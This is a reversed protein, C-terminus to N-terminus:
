SPDAKQAPRPPSGVADPPRLRLDITAALAYGIAAAGVGTVLGAAADLPFDLGLYLRAWIVGALGPLGVCLELIRDGRRRTIILFGALLAASLAVPRSPYTLSRFWLSEPIGAGVLSPQGVLFALLWATAWAFATVAGFVIMDTLRTGAILVVAAILLLGLVAFTDLMTNVVTAGVALAHGGRMQLLAGVQGGLESWEPRGSMVLGGLTVLLLGFVGAFVLGRRVFTSSSRELEAVGAADRLTVPWTVRFSM